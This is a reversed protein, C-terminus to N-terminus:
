HDGFIYLITVQNAVATKLDAPHLPFSPNSGIVFEKFIM